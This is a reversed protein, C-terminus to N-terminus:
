FEHNGLKTLFAKKSCPHEIEFIYQIIRECLSLGNESNTMIVIGHRQASSALAFCQSNGMDGWHWFYDGKITHEIGWGLGWSCFCNVKVQPVLMEALLSNQSDLSDMDTIQMMEIIFKAFDCPSSYLSFASYPELFYEDLGENRNGCGTAIYKNYEEKWTYNSNALGLCDTFVEELCAWFTQAFNYELVRQLFIYGEGSYAFKKGPFFKLRGIYPEEWCDWNSFGASHALIHRMTVFPLKDENPQFNWATYRKPYYTILPEDLHISRQKILQLACYAFLPKSLSGAEFITNSDISELSASRKVGFGQAWVISTQDILVLSAGPIDLEKLWLPVSQKLISLTSDSLM